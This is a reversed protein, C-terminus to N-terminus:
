AMDGRIENWIKTAELANNTIQNFDGKLILNKKAIWTGGVSIVSKNRAWENLNELSVGGLPIYKLNLYAYPSNMSSLYKEGGMPSAPFFKLINCGEELAAELESPTAIGPAFPLNVELAERVIKPNFGPSVGFDAGLSKVRSAQGEKIITGIGICMQPVNEKILKISPEAAPTRLALEIASIGGKLLAECTPVADAENDIELVAIIGNNILMRELTPM